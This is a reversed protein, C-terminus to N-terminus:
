LCSTSQTHDRIEFSFFIADRLVRADRSVCPVFKETNTEHRESKRANSHIKSAGNERASINPVGGLSCFFSCFISRATQWSGTKYFQLDIDAGTFMNQLLCYSKEIPVAVTLITDVQASTKDSIDETM